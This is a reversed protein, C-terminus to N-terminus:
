LYVLLLHKIGSTSPTTMLALAESLNNEANNGNDANSSSTAAANTASTYSHDHRLPESQRQAAQRQMAAAAHTERRSFWEEFNDLPRPRRSFTPVPLRIRPPASPSSPDEPDTHRSRSTPGLNIKNILKIIRIFVSTYFATAKGWRMAASYRGPSRNRYSATTSVATANNRRSPATSSAQANNTVNDNDRVAGQRRPGWRRTPGGSSHRPTFPRGRRASQIPRRLDM